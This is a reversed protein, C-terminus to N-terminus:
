LLSLGVGCFLGCSLFFVVQVMSDKTYDGVIVHFYGQGGLTLEELMFATGVVHSGNENFYGGFGGSGCYASSIYSLHCVIYGDSSNFSAGESAYDRQWYLTFAAVADDIINGHLCALLTGSLVVAKASRSRVWHRFGQHNNSPRM